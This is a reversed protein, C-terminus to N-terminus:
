ILYISGVKIQLTVNTYHNVLTGLELGTTTYFKLIHELLNIYYIHTCYSTRTLMCGRFPTKKKKKKKKKQKQKQKQKQKKDKM